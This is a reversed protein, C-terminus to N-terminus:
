EMFFLKKEKALATLEDLEAVDFVVPKEILLHKGAMLAGKATAYHNPPPTGIYVM